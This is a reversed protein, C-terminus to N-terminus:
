LEEMRIEYIGNRIETKKLVFKTGKDFLVEKQNTETFIGNFESIKSIDRGNKGHIEFLIKVHNKPIGDYSLFQMPIDKSPSTSTFAKEEIVGGGVHSLYLENFKKKSLHTGRYVIDNYKPLDKLGKSILDNAVDVYETTNDNRLRKNIERFTACKNGERIAQTYANIAALRVEPINPYISQYYEIRSMAIKTRRKRIFSKEQANYVNVKFDARIFDGNDRMFYPMTNWGKARQINDNVWTKFGQPVDTIEDNDTGRNGEDEWWKEESKIIPVVYCLDNPHWGVWKFSKPYRGKLDDCIDHCPHSHSLNIQSKPM